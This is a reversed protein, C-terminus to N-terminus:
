AAGGAAMKSRVKEGLVVLVPPLSEDLIGSSGGGLLTSAVAGRGRSGVVIPDARDSAGLRSM